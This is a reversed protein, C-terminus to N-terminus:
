KWLDITLTSFAVWQEPGNGLPPYSSRSPIRRHFDTIGATYKPNRGHFLYYTEINGNDDYDVDVVVGVHNIGKGRKFLDNASFKAYKKGGYGYFLVAGPKILHQYAEASDLPVVILREREHYWKALDRTSRYTKLAPIDHEPCAQQFEMLVRHFMGSCDATDASVYPFNQAELRQAIEKVVPGIDILDDRCISQYTNLHQYVSVIDNVKIPIPVPIPKETDKKKSNKSTNSHNSHPKCSFITSSLSVITVLLILHKTNLRHAVNM